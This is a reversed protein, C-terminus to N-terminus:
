HKEYKVFNYKLNIFFTRGYSITSNNPSGHVGSSAGAGNVTTVNFINKVGASVSLSRKFMKKTVSVDMQNYSDRYFLELDGSEGYRYGPNKGNFKYVTSVNLTRNLLYLSLNCSLDYGWLWEDKQSEDQVGNYTYGLMMNLNNSLNVDVQTKFGSTILYGINDSKYHLDNDPNVQVLTIQDKITNYYSSIEFATERNWLMMELDYSANFNHSYEAKLDENGEIEHNSDFFHLYLEKIFPARFGRAYSLRFKSKNKEYWVNLSPVIPANYKTNYAFRLGPQIKFHENFNYQSTAFVAYDGIQQFKDKIRLGFANEYNFDTGAQLKIKDGEFEYIARIIAANFSTTDHDSVEDTITSELTTLNKLYKNRARSYYSYSGLINLKGKEKFDIRTELSNNIRITKFWSDYAHIFYPNPAIDGKNQLRERFIDSKVKTRVNNKIYSYYISGNYQEKPNWFSSRDSEDHDYGDFFSRGLHIGFNHKRKKFYTSLHFNSMGVSEYYADLEAKFNAYKNEKTIINVVGGLANSGYIVSMPGEVIEIHEVNSLSLQSLDVNGNLRGIVPVGDILIKINEGSIGHIKLSQGTAGDNVIQISSKKQLIDVMNVANTNEIESAGIVKVKYISQDLPIAENQGTIVFEDLSLGQKLFFTQKKRYQFITDVLNTYGVFSVSVVTPEKFDFQVQGDADSLSYSISKSELGELCVHCYALPQNDTKDKVVLNMKQAFSGFSVILMIFTVFRKM